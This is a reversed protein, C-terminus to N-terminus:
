VVVARKVRGMRVWGVLVALMVVFGLYGFFPYVQGVLSIFGILSCIFAAVGAGVAGLRFSRTGAPLLRALFSYLMGVATNVIMGFIIVCMIVGLAPSIESAISLMPMPLDAVTDLRSLLGASMVLMLGGLGAGGLIGGWIATKELRASGGLIALMPAGAVVNYSVYLFAGLLWHSAGAEQRSAIQDLATFSLDRTFVAYLAIATAALILFPTVAGILVIVKHIDLCVVAVVLLTVLVSGTLAPIGFQQELLAGGGALMVVTVGFMFFTILLDVFLGLYRGCIAYVVDKHSAAQLRNGLGALAMGLFTFLAASVLTGLLGWVGFNVFFLLLERGSAFGAGVIVGIFAGAIKLQEKM